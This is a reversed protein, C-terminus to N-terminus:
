YENEVIKKMKAAKRAPEWCPGIYLNGVALFDFLQNCVPGIM